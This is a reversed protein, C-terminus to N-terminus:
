KIRLGVQENMLDLNPNFYPDKWDMYPRYYELSHDYDLKPVNDYSGVSINEYHVLEAFPWYVNRYGSEYLRIGLAVDNGAITFVEDFGGVEDFKSAKITVCAATVALYNRPWAPMGFDTWDSANLYRFIHGAMGTMGLIVGAHQITKDPYHLLAGVEGIEPQSAVGVLEELWNPTIVETDNNLFILYDGSAQKRGYNNIKSYNFPHDWKFIRCHKDSKVSNLYSFTEEEVSNNSLLIIEYNNYSSKGIISAVCQKLLDPKDKFPIIISVKPHQSPLKFKLRYNTPRDPIEIVDAKLKRRIVADRLAEQGATDAYDKEGVSKATSGEALRWHYLIKPVHVIRNTTETLRLLFDYDQAGDFGERLGQLSDVLTKRAVVFHTVYNVGLLLEPSWDPKFFPLLRNKGDDSLKDEDSYILDSAPQRYIAFAVENLAEPALTDDHDMFAVYAGDALKLAENTNGAIGLNDKIKRYKVRSGKKALNQIYLSKQQDTSGDAICLQWNSYTQKELSEFLQDIYLKPTNFCPVIVSLLLSDSNKSESDQFLSPEFDKIWKDYTVKASNSNAQNHKILQKVRSRRRSGIPLIQNIVKKM